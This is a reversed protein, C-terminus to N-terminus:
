SNLLLAVAASVDGNTAALAARARSSDFGMPLLVDLSSQIRLQIDPISPARAATNQAADQTLLLM